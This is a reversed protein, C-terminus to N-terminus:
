RCALKLWRSPRRSAPGDAPTTPRGEASPGRKSRDRYDKAGGEEVDCLLQDVLPDEIDLARTTEILKREDSSASELAYILPLTVKGERLDNGVPKGLM